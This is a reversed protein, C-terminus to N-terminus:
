QSRVVPNCYKAGPVLPVLLGTAVPRSQSGPRGLKHTARNERHLRVAVGPFPRPETPPSLPWGVSGVGTGVRCRVALALSGGCGAPLTRAPKGNRGLMDSSSGTGDQALWVAVLEKGRRTTPGFGSPHRDGTLWIMGKSIWCLCVNSQFRPRPGCLLKDM